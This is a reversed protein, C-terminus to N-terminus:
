FTGPFGIGIRWPQLGTRQVLAGDGSTFGTTWADRWDLRASLFSLFSFCRLWRWRWCCFPSKFFFLFTIIFM